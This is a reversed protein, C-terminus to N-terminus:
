RMFQDAEAMSNPLLLDCAQYLKRRWSPIRPVNARVIFKTCAALRTPLSRHEHWCSAMDFWAITSLVVPVGQRHAEAVTGLHEPESGFLHLVDAEVLRKEWPRWFEAQVGAQTLARLTSQMQVEGGGPASLATLKGALLIQPGARNRDVIAVCLQALHPPRFRRIPGRNFRKSAIPAPM